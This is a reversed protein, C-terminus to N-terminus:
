ENSEETPDLDDPRWPWATESYWALKVSYAINARRKRQYDPNRARWDRNYAARQEAHTARYWRGYADGNEKNAAWDRRCAIRHCAVCTRNARHRLTGGCRHCPKGHYTTM